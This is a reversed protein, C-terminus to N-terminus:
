RIEHGKEENVHIQAPASQQEPNFDNWNCTLVTHQLSASVLAHGRIM